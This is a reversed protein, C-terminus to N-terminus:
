QDHDVYEESPVSNRRRLAAIRATTGEASAFTQIM